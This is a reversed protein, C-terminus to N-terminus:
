EAQVAIAGGIASMGREQVERIPARPAASGCLGPTLGAPRDACSHLGQFRHKLMPGDIQELVNRQVEVVYDPRIGIILRDFAAHHIKCLALGNKVTPEGEPDADPVIHAADLLDRHRLRCLTCEDRYARLM